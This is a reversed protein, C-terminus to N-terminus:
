VLIYTCMNDFAMADDNNTVNEGISSGFLEDFKINKKVIFFYKM